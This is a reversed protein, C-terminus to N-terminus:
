ENLGGSGDIVAAGIVEIKPTMMAIPNIFIDLVMNRYHLDKIEITKGKEMSELVKNKIDFIGKLQEELDSMKCEFNIASPDLLVGQETLQSSCLLRKAASNILFLEGERDTIIFGHNLSNLSAHLRAQEERLEKTRELVLKEIIEKEQQLRQEYLKRATIDLSLIFAGEVVPEIRIEYYGTAGSPYHFQSELRQATREELCHKLANFVPSDIVWPYIEIMSNGLLDNIPRRHYQMAIKNLYLYKYDFGVIEAGELLNDMANRIRKRIVRENRERSTLLHVAFFDGM